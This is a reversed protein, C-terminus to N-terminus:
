LYKNLMEARKELPVMLRALNWGMQEVEGAVCIFMM